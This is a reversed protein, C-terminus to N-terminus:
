YQNQKNTIVFAVYLGLDLRFSQCVFIKLWGRFNYHGFIINRTVECLFFFNRWKLSQPSNCNYRDRSATKNIIYLHHPRLLLIISPPYVLHIIIITPWNQALRHVTIPLHWSISCRRYKIYFWSGVFRM